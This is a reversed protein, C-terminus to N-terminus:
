LPAIKAMAVVIAAQLTELQAMTLADLSAVIASVACEVPSTDEGDADPTSITAKSPAKVSKVKAPAKPKPASWAGMGVDSLGLTERILILASGYAVSKGHAKFPSVVDTVIASSWTDFQAKGTPVILGLTASLKVFQHCVRGSIAQTIVHDNFAQGVAGADFLSAYNFALAKPSATRTKPLAHLVTVTAAPTADHALPSFSSQAYAM